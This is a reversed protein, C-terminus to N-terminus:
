RKRIGGMGRSGRDSEGGIEWGFGKLLVRGGKLECCELKSEMAELILFWGRRGHYVM